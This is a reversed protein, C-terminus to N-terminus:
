IKNSKGLYRALLLPPLCLLVKPRWVVKSIFNAIFGTLQSPPPTSNRSIDACLNSPQQTANHVTYQMYTHGNQMSQLFSICYASLSNRDLMHKYVLNVNYMRMDMKVIFFLYLLPSFISGTSTSYFAVFAFQKIESRQM